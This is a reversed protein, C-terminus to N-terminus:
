QPPNALLYPYGNNIDPSQGWINPEFGEPLGSKLQADSLGTVDPCDSQCGNAQGSTDVDWYNHDSEEAEYEGIFGGINRGHKINSDMGSSVIPGISYSTSIADTLYARGLL